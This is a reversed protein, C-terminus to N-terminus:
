KRGLRDVLKKNNGCVVVLQIQSGVKSALADVTAEVPGM